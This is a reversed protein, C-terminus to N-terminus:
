ETKAAFLDKRLASIAAPDVKAHIVAPAGAAFADQLAAGTEGPGAAKYGRAGCLRAVEDYPPNRLDAGFTRGAFFTQQYAKEAGWAGNDLVVAVVPLAHAVATTIEAMTFGFGGDGMVALVPREPVAAQAGLAAAYGFGVLGFDLPTVLGPAQGHALRDAAQLCANGTDLTVIADRPMAERIEGLVRRPDLPVAALGAEERREDLLRRRDAQFQKTWGAWGDTGLGREQAAELLAAAFAAADAQIGLEAPFYRGIAAAEVDVQVIRASESIYDNSLFTSNFALRTGVALLLDCELALRRAVGNGRPGGQGANLPHDSPLLDAHGTSAVVPIDLAEALEALVASGEAWKFGGGAYIVPRTAAALMELVQAHQQGTPGGGGVPSLPGLAPPQIAEAFLDRPVHLVVPGRRGSMALRLAEHLMEPLREATPVLISRKCIPQFLAVQDIEQFTDKGLDRRTIAGAIAVLPSYALHAEAVATVLNAVGPGAQAGLVVGPGGGIRAYADAMHGAAREDRAGVYRIDSRDRLADYLELMSGGLLGFLCTVGADRLVEVCAQGGSIKESV